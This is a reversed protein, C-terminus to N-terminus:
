QYFDYWTGKMAMAGIDIKGEVSKLKNYDYNLSFAGEGNSVKADSIFAGTISLSGRFDFRLSIDQSNKNERSDIFAMLGSFVMAIGDPRTTLTVDENGASKNIVIFSDSINGTKFACQTVGAGLDIWVSKGNLNNPLKDCSSVQIDFVNKNIGSLYHSSPSGGNFKFNHKNKLKYQLCASTAENEGECVDAIGASIVGSPTLPPPPPTYPKSLHSTDASSSSTGNVTFDVDGGAILGADPATSYGKSVIVAQSAFVTGIQDKDSEKNYSYSEISHFVSGLKNIPKIKVLNGCDVIIDSTNSVNNNKIWSVACALGSQAKNKNELYRIRDQNTQVMSNVTAGYGLISVAVVAMLMLTVTLTAFGKEPTSTLKMM